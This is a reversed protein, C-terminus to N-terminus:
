GAQQQYTYLKFLYTYLLSSDFTDPVHFWPWCLFFANIEYQSAWNERSIVTAPDRVISRNLRTGREGLQQRAEGQQVAEEEEGGEDVVPQRGEPPFRLPVDHDYGEYVRDLYVSYM